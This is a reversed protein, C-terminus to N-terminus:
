NLKREQAQELEILENMVRAGAKQLHLLSEPIEVGSPVSVLYGNLALIFGALVQLSETKKEFEENLMGIIRDSIRNAEEFHKDLEKANM